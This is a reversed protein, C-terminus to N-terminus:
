ENAGFISELWDLWFPRAPPLPASVPVPTPETGSRHIPIFLTEGDRTYHLASRAKREVWGDTVVDKKLQVLETNAQEVSALQADAAQVAQVLQVNELIRRGFDWTMMFLGAVIVLVLVQYLGLSKFM